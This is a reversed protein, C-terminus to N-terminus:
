DVNYKVEYIYVGLPIIIFVSLTLFLIPMLVEFGYEAFPQFLFMLSKEKLVLLFWVFFTATYTYKKDNFFQSFSSGVVGAFGALTCVLLTFFLDTLYPHEISLNFLLNNALVIETLGKTYTGNWFLLNVLIFNISLTILMTFFSVLFSSLLKTLYYKKRGTKSILINKYGTKYDQIADDSCLLLLFLPLFWLLLIQAVHGRSSGALYFAFAPNFETGQTFKMLLLQVIEICPILLIIFFIIRSLKNKYLRFFQSKFM